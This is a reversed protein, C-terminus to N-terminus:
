PRALRHQAETVAADTAALQDDTFKDPTLSAPDIGLGPQTQAFHQAMSARQVPDPTRQAIAQAITNLLSVHQLTALRLQGPLASIRDTLTQAQTPPSGFANDGVQTAAQQGLTRGVQFANVYNGVPDTQKLAGFNIDIGDAM